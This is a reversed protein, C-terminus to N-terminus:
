PDSAGHGGGCGSLVGGGTLRLKFDADWAAPWAPLLLIKGADEQVLMRQLATAGAGIVGPTVDVFLSAAIGKTM